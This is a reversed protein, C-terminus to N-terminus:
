GWVNVLTQLIAPDAVVAAADVRVAAEVAHTVRAEVDSPVSLVTFTIAAAM